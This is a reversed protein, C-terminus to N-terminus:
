SLTWEVHSLLPRASNWDRRVSASVPAEAPAFAASACEGRVLAVAAAAVEPPPLLM